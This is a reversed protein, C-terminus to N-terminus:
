ISFCTSAMSRHNCSSNLFPKLVFASLIKMNNGKNDLFSCRWDKRSFLQILESIKIDIETTFM